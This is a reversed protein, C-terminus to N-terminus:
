AIVVCAIFLLAVESVVHHHETTVLVVGGFKINVLDNVSQGHVGIDDDVGTGGRIAICLFM